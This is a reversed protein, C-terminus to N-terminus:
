YPLTSIGSEHILGVITNNKWTSKISRTSQLSHENKAWNDKCM